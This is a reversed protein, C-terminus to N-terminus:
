IDHYAGEGARRAWLRRIDAPVEAFAAVPHPTRDSFACVGVGATDGEGDSYSAVLPRSTMTTPIQRPTYELLFQTWWLLCSRLQPSLHRGDRRYCRAFIPRLKARGVRGFVAILAFGLRGALSSAEGPRLIGSDITRWLALQLARFRKKSIM